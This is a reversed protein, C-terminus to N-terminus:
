SWAYGHGSKSEGSSKKERRNNRCCGAIWMRKLKVWLVYVERCVAAKWKEVNNEPSTLDNKLQLPLTCRVETSAPDEIFPWHIRAFDEKKERERLLNQQVLFFSYKVRM